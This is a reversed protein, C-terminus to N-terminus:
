EFELVSEPALASFDGGRLLAFAGENGRLHADFFVAGFLRLLERQRDGTIYEKGKPGDRTVCPGASGGVSEAIAVADAVLTDGAIRTVIDSGGVDRDNLDVDAFKIHDAGNLEVFYRPRNAVDYARRISSPDVILEESGGLVMVPTTSAGAFDDGFFCGPPSIPLVADIREDALPGFTTMMTTLGGLSHGTMGIREADISGALLGEPEENRILLEDIVFSVDAPQDIVARLRPGGGAGGFSGPFDPAAVIYGHSALHRTYQASQIRTGTFGHAFIILPYPGRDVAADRQEDVASGAAPYWLEVTIVREPAGAFEGNPAIPRSADVLELTAVGVAHPGADAYSEIAVPTATATPEPDGGGSACAVLTLTLVAAAVAVVRHHM